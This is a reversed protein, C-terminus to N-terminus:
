TYEPRTHIHSRVFTLPRMDKIHCPLFQCCGPGFQFARRCCCICPCSFARRVCALHRHYVMGAHLSSNPSLRVGERGQVGVGQVRRTDGWERCRVQDPYWRHDGLEMTGFEFYVPLKRCGSDQPVRLCSRGNWSQVAAALGNMIADENDIM